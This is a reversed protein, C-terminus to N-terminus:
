KEGKNQEKIRSEIKSMISLGMIIAGLATGVIVGIGYAILSTM